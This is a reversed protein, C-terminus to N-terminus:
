VGTQDNIATAGKYVAMGVLTNSGLTADYDANKELNIIGQNIVMNSNGYAAMGAGANYVTIVGGELNTAIANNLAGGGTDTGTAMGVGYDK